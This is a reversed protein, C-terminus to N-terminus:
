CGADSSLPACLLQHQGLIIRHPRRNSPNTTSQESPPRSLSLANALHNVHLRVLRAVRGCGLPWNRGGIPWSARSHCPPPLTPM